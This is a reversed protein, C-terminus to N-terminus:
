GFVYTIGKAILTATVAWFGACFVALGAIKTTFFWDIPPPWQRTPYQDRSIHNSM